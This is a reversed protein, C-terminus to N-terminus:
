HLRLIINLAANLLLSTAFVSKIVRYPSSQLPHLPRQHFSPPRERTTFAARASNEWRRDDAGLKM